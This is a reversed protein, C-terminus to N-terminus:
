SKRKLSNNVSPTGPVQGSILLQVFEGVRLLNANYECYTLGDYWNELWEPNVEDKLAEIEKREEGSTKETAAVIGRAHYM